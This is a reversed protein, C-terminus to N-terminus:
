RAADRAIPVDVRNGWETWSGDYLRARKQGLIEHLVFWTVVGREGRLCYSAIPPGWPRLYPRYLRRLRGASKFAGNPQLARSWLINRATPIHGFVTVVDPKGPPAGALGAYEDHTRVDILSIRRERLRALIQQSFVRVSADTGAVTYRTRPPHPVDTTVPRGEAVWKALGGDLVAIRSAGRYKFVWYGYIASLGGVPIDGADYFVVTGGSRLGLKGGLEEIGRASVFNRRLKTMLDTQLVVDVAGPIHGAAYTPVEVDDVNVISVSPDDLHEALWQTSVLSAASAAGLALFGALALVPLL